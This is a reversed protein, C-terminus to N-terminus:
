LIPTTPRVYVHRPHTCLQDSCACLPQLRATYTHTHTPSRGHIPTSMTHHYTPTPCPPHISSFYSLTPLHLSSGQTTLTPLFAPAPCHPRSSVTPCHLHLSLTHPPCHPHTNHTPPPTLFHSPLIRLATSKLPHRLPPPLHCPVHLAGLGAAMMTRSSAHFIVSSFTSTAHRHTQQMNMFTKLLARWEALPTSALSPGKARTLM